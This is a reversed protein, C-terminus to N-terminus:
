CLKARNTLNALLSKIIEVYRLMTCTKTLPTLCM